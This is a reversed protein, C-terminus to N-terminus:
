NGDPSWHWPESPLNRFGFRSANSQLWAFAKSGRSLISGNSTFDIALGREHNSTGPRATPPRCQFAPKQYVDYDSSGCHARRLAIQGAPDRYGSGGLDIGAKDAAALLNELNGAISSAVVIGRVNRMDGSTPLNVPARTTKSQRAKAAAAAAAAAQRELEASLAKDQAGLSNAESLLRDIRDEVADVIKQQQAQAEAVQDVRSQVDRKAAEARTIAANHEVQLAELDARAARFQEALDRNANNVIGLLAEKRVAENIDGSTMASLKDEIPRTYNDVAVNTMLTKLADIKAKTEAEQKRLSEAEANAQAVAAEANELAAEEIRLNNDLTDLADQLEDDNAKLSDLESAVQVKRKRVEERQARPDDKTPTAAQAPALTLLGALSGIVIAL